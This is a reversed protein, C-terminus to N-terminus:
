IQFFRRIRGWLRLLTPANEPYYIGPRDIKSPDIGAALLREIENRAARWQAKTRLQPTGALKGHHEAWRRVMDDPLDQVLHGNKNRLSNTLPLSTVEQHERRIHWALMDSAQLPLADASRDDKFLPEGAIFKKANAPLPEILASFFMGIDDDVGQQEDFVFEIPDTMDVSAAYQALGAVVAFCLQFHPRGFGYPSVPKLEDEFIQRNISFQYSLPQYREIIAALAEVKADRRETDWGNAKDFEGVLRNADKAKFYKISPAADLEAQWEKSFAVWAEASHLYGALFLRRDGDQASSDDTFAQLLALHEGEAM